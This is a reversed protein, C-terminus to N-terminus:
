FFVMWVDQHFKTSQERFHFGIFHSRKRSSQIFQLLVHVCSTRRIIGEPLISIDIRTAQSAALELAVRPHLLKARYNAGRSCSLDSFRGIQAVM